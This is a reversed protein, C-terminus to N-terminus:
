QGGQVQAQAEHSLSAYAQAVAELEDAPHPQRRGSTHVLPCAPPGRKSRSRRRPVSVPPRGAAPAISLSPGAPPLPQSSRDAQERVLVPERAPQPRITVARVPCAYPRATALRKAAHPWFTPWGQGNEHGGRAMKIAVGLTKAPRPWTRTRPTITQRSVANTPM